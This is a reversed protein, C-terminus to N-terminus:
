LVLTPTNMELERLVAARSGRWKHLRRALETPTENRSSRAQRDAGIAILAHVLDADNVRVARHLPYELFFFKAKRPCNVGGFGWKHLFPKVQDGYRLRANANDQQSSKASKALHKRVEKEAELRRWEMALVASTFRDWSDNAEAHKKNLNEQCAVVEEVKKLAVTPAVINLLTPLDEDTESVDAYKYFRAQAFGSIKGSPNRLKFDGDSDVEVVTAAMGEPLEWDVVQAIGSQSYVKEGVVPMRSTCSAQGNLPSAGTVFIDLTNTDIANSDGCPYCGCLWINSIAMM